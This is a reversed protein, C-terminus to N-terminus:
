GAEPDDSQHEDPGPAAGGLRHIFAGSALKPEFWTSKPPMERGADAVSMVDDMRTAFLSFAVAHETKDVLRELFELPKSGGVFQIRPDRRPDTIGLIPNLLSNQLVAVDLRNVPDAAPIEGPLPELEYWRGDVYMCFHGSAAPKASRAPQVLFRAAIADLLESTSLGATDAVVRQYPLVLLEDSPFAACVFQGSDGGSGGRAARLKAVRSAAAARHHGDAIYLAELESFAERIGDIVASDTIHWAEHVTPDIEFRLTPPLQTITQLLMRLQPHPRHALYVLGVQAGVIDMHRTRDLEKDPRTLEHRRVLNGDYDSTQALGVVGVQEHGFRELRYVFYGSAQERLAGSECLEALKAGAARYQEILAPTHHPSYMVEPRIVRIVSADSSAAIARAEDETLVDYPPCVVAQASERSPTWATFPSFQM